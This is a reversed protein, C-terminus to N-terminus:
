IRVGHRELLAVIEFGVPNSPGAQSMALKLVADLASDRAALQARLLGECGGDPGVGVVVKVEAAGFFRDVTLTNHETAEEDPLCFSARFDGKVNAAFSTVLRVGLRMDNVLDGPALMRVEKNITVFPNTRM